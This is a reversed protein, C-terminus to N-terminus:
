NITIKSAMIFPAEKQAGLVTEYQILNIFYGNITLWDGELINSELNDKSISIMFPKDIDGDGNLQILIDDGNKQVVLVEGQVEITQFTYEDSNRMLQEWDVETAKTESDSSEYEGDEYTITTTKMNDTKSNNASEIILNKELEIGEKILDPDYTITMGFQEKDLISLNLFTIAMKDNAQIHSFVPNNGELVLQTIADPEIGCSRSIEYIYEKAINPFTIQKINKLDDSIYIKGWDSKYIKKGDEETLEWELNSNIKKMTEEPNDKPYFYKSESPLTFGSLIFFCSTM